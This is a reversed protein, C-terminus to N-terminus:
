LSIMLVSLLKRLPTCIYMGIEAFLPSILNTATSIADPVSVPLQRADIPQAASATKPEAVRAIHAVSGAPLAAPDAVRRVVDLGANTVPIAIALSVAFGLAFSIKSFTFM